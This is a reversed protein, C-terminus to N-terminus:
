RTGRARALIQALEEPDDELYTSNGLRVRRTTKGSVFDRISGFLNPDVDEVALDDYSLNAMKDASLKQNDLIGVPEGYFWEKLWSDGENLDGAINRLGERAVLAGAPTNAGPDRMQETLIDYAVDPGFQAALAEFEATRLTRQAEDHTEASRMADAGSLRMDHQAQAREIATKQPINAAQANNEAAESLLKAEKATIKPANERAKRAALEAAAMGRSEIEQVSLKPSNAEAANYARVMPDGGAYPTPAMGSSEGRRRVGAPGTFGGSPADRDARFGMKDYYRVDGTGRDSYTGEGTKVVRSLGAKKINPNIAMSYPEPTSENPDVIIPAKPAYRDNSLKVPPDFPPAVPVEPVPAVRPGGNIRAGRLGAQVQAVAAPIDRFDRTVENVREQGRRKLSEVGDAPTMGFAPHVRELQGQVTLPRHQFPWNPDTAM